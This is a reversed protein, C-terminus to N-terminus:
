CTEARQRQFCGMRFVVVIERECRPSPVGLDAGEDAVTLPRQVSFLRHERTGDPVAV